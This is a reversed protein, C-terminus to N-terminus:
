FVTCTISDPIRTLNGPPTGLLVSGIIRRAVMPGLTEGYMGTVNIMIVLHNQLRLWPHEDSTHNPVYDVMVKINRRHAEALFMKFDELDGFLPDVSYYDSIDYGFDAMPSRYFPSIWVADIGLSTRKGKIYDLKETMGALDGVGDGNSDKFSRPYIQYIGNVDQWRAM